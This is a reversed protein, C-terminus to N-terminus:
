ALRDFYDSGGLAGTPPATDTTSQLIFTLDTRSTRAAPDTYTAGRPWTTATGGPWTAGTKIIYYPTGPLASAYSLSASPATRWAIVRGQAYDGTPATSGSNHATTVRIIAGNPAEFVDNRTYVTNAAWADRWGLKASIADQLGEVGAITSVVGNPGIWIDTTTVRNTPAVSGVWVVSAAGAPRATGANTGHAVITPRAALATLIAAAETDDSALEAAIEVLTDYAALPTGGTLTNIRATLQAQTVAADAKALSDRVSQVFKASTISNDELTSPRAEVENLVNALARILVRFDDGWDTTGDAWFMQEVDIAM